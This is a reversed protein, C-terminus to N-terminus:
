SKEEEDRLLYKNRSLIKISLYEELFDLVSESLYYKSYRYQDIIKYLDEETLAGTAIQAKIEKLSMEPHPDKHVKM